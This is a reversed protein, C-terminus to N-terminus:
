LAEARAGIGGCEPIRSLLDKHHAQPPPRLLEAMCQSLELLSPETGIDHRRHIPVGDLALLVEGCKTHLCHRLVPAVLVMVHREGCPLHSAEQTVVRDPVVHHLLAERRRQDKLVVEVELLVKHLPQPRVQTLGLAGIPCDHVHPPTGHLIVHPLNGFVDYLRSIREPRHGVDKAQLRGLSQQVDLCLPVHHRQVIVERHGHTATLIPLVVLQGGLPAEM